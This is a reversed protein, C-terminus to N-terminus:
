ECKLANVPNATAAKITLYSVTLASITLTLLGALIFYGIHINIRYAFNQLWGNMIWWAFPWAIINALLIWRTFQKLLIFVISNVSAGLVKRIGIESTKREATFAALGFLGLCAIVIAIISFISFFYGTQLQKSHLNNFYTDLFFYDLPQNDSFGEWENRIFKITETVNHTQLKIMVYYNNYTDPHHLMAPEIEEYLANVHFDKFVGIITVPEKTTPDIINKGVPDQINWYKAAQQNILVKTKDSVLDPSFNRGSVLEVGLTELYDYDGCLRRFYFIDEPPADDIQFMSGDSSTGPVSYTISANTVNPNSKIVDRFSELQDGLVHARDVILIQERDFGLDKNKIYQM